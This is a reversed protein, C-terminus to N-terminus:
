QQQQQQHCIRVVPIHNTNDCSVAKTKSTNDDVNNSLVVAKSIIALKNQETQNRNRNLYPTPFGVVTKEEGRLEETRDSSYYSRFLM